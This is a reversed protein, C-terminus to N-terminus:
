PLPTGPAGTDITVSLAPSPGSENEGISVRSTISHVGDSLPSPPTLTNAGQDFGDKVKTGDVYLHPTEGAGPQSITFSPTNVNTINDERSTGPACQNPDLPDPPELLPCSDSQPILDPATAPAPPTAPAPQNVTILYTRDNGNPAIVHVEIDTNSPGGSLPISRSNGAQSNIEVTASSDQPVATVLIATATSDVDNVTYPLTRAVTFAPSLTGPSVTLNVLSDNGGLAARIVNVTYTKQNGNPATVAINILTNSGAGTLTITRAQGSNTAQGNVSTTAATDQETPTVTVSSVGSGVNVTYSTTNANFNPDLGGPAVTLGTLNNIGGPAARIVNVTYTKPSGDQAVVVMNIFTNSGPAPLPTTRAQGSTTTQGNVSMTAVTDQLRPTVTVSTVNSALTAPLNVTYGTTGARFTPSLTGPSIGLSQLNNNNSRGRSVDVVYTKSNGNQATVIITITTSQGGGNLTITRTQGSNTDQGNVTMTAAPDSLTPTVTVSGVNNAVSATYSQLNEDFTPALPGPSVTLNELSNNGALGARVVRIVYTRSNTDAESVVVNIVTTSGPPDLSISRSTTRQGDITVTDSAVAAQATVTVTPVDTTVDVRYQTTGGSFGPQLTASGNTLGVSLSALEVVPNVSASDGCGYAGLGLATFLVAALCRGPLPLTHRM